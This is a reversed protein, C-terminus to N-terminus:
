GYQQFILLCFKLLNTCPSASEVYFGLENYVSQLEGLKWVMDRNVIIVYKPICAGGTLIGATKFPYNSESSLGNITTAVLEVLYKTNRKLVNPELVLNEQKFGTTTFLGEVKTKNESVTWTFNVSNDCKDSESSSSCKGELSLRDTPNVLPLCNM